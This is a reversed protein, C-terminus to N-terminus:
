QIPMPAPYGSQMQPAPIQGANANAMVPLRRTVKGKAVVVEFDSISKIKVGNPLTDGASVRTKKGGPFVITAYLRSGLGEIAQVSIDDAGSSAKLMGSNKEAIQSRLEAAKLQATLLLIKNNAESLKEGISKEGVTVVVEEAVAGSAPKSTSALAQANIIALIIAVSLKKIVM